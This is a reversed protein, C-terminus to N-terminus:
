RGIMGAAFDAALSHNPDAALVQELRKRAKAKQGLGLYAQAELFHAATNQRAQLDDDFLLMTPQIM